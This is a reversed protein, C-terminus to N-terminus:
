WRGHRRPLKTALEYLPSKEIQRVQVRMGRTFLDRGRPIRLNVLRKDDLRVGILLRNMMLREVAGAFVPASSVASGDPLLAKKQLEGFDVGDAEGNKQVVGLAAMVRYFGSSSYAVGAGTLAWDADQALKKREHRFRKGNIGSALALRAELFPFANM